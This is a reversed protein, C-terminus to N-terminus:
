QSVPKIADPGWVTADRLDAQITNNRKDKIDGM